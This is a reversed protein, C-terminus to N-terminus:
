IPEFRFRQVSQPYKELDVPSLFMDVPRAYVAMDGYLARYVVLREDTETHRAVAIIEYTYRCPSAEREAETMMMRKFHQVRMGAALQQATM